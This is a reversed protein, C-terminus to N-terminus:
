CHTPHSFNSGGGWGGGGVGEGLSRACCAAVGLRAPLSACDKGTKGVLDPSFLVEGCTVLEHTFSLGHSPAGQGSYVVPDPAGHAATM